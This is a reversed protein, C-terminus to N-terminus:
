SLNKIEAISARLQKVKKKLEFNDNKLKVVELENRVRSSRISRALISKANMEGLLTIQSEDFPLGSKEISFEGMEFTPGQWKGGPPVPELGLFSFDQAYVGTFLDITEQPVYSFVEELSVVQADSRNEPTFSERVGYLDEVLCELYGNLREAPIVEDVLLVGQADHLWDFQPASANRCHWEIFDVFTMARMMMSISSNGDRRIFHYTSLLREWPDRTIAFSRLAEWKKQGLANLFDRARAHGDYVRERADPLINSAIADSIGPVDHSSQWDKQKTDAQTGYRQLAMTVTTGACKPIHIFAMKHRESLLSVM